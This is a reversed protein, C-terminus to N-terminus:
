THAKAPGRYTCVTKGTEWVSLEELNVRGQQDMARIPPDLMQWIVQAIHEVSPNLEAFAPVDVNLHKHDLKEIVERNVVADLAEVSCVHGEADIPVAVAVELQYNHGHGAPNNCKGFVERNEAETLTDVHLRHAASFEYRQRITVREMADSRITLSHTPTLHLVLERVTQHLPPQLLGLMQQMLLGMPLETAPTPGAVRRQLEPLVHDRM